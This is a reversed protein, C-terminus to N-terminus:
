YVQLLFTTGFLEEDEFRRLSSIDWQDMTTIARINGVYVLTEPNSLEDRSMYWDPIERETNDISELFIRYNVLDIRFSYSFAVKIVDRM